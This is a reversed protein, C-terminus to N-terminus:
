GGDLSSHETKAFWGSPDNLYERYDVLALYHGQEEATLARFFRVEVGDDAERSHEEYFKRSKEEMDLAVTVADLEGSSAEVRADLKKSAKAFISRVTKGQDFSVEDEALSNGQKLSEFIHKAKMAHYDEEDALQAFLEKGLSDTARESAKRYFEKGDTEMQLAIELPNVAKEKAEDRRYLVM